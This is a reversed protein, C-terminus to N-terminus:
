KYYSNFEALYEAPTQKKYGSQGLLQGDSDVLVVFPFVGNKNYTEALVANSKAQAETLANKKRRPFDAKVLVLQEKAYNAFTETAWLEKELKICPGCWDSGQFVILVPKDENIAKKQAESFDTLWVQGNASGIQILTALIIIIYQRM